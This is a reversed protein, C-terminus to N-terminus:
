DEMSAKGRKMLVLANEFGAEHVMKQITAKSSEAGNFLLVPDLFCGAVNAFAVM